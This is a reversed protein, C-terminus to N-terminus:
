SEDAPDAEVKLVLGDMGIVRVAQGKKLPGKSVARWREGHAFVHGKGGRWDEVEGRAGTMEEIGTAVRLQHSRMALRVVVLTLALSTVAVAGIVAWSIQFGPAEIDILIAAGLAFAAVGGTGLVGFSPTFAEAIMLGMGLVILALGAYNVPLLAFAYLGVLLCIAGITGPILAGPNMFEFILGYIGIMMLILAINPNTITSLLRTRWDPEIHEVKLDKTDLLTEVKGVRVTRGHVQGLLDDIDNAIIDVVNEKLAESASLSAAERVAKEAWDANRGRLEALSRIYAVADSIAKAEMPKPPSPTATDKEGTETEKKKAKEEDKDSGPLPLGGGIAVPTAAGVNTGPTMAAIHSAYLIYTGASAARAGSPHVYTVVPVTSALIARNIDRMSTDLGGPTDMRLIVLSAGKEAAANLGRRLYDATAPGIAGEIPMVLAQPPSPPDVASAPATLVFAAAASAVLATLLTANSRM